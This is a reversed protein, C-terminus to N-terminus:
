RVSECMFLFLVSLPYPSVIRGLPTIRICCSVVSCREFYRHRADSLVSCIVNYHLCPMLIHTAGNGKSVQM